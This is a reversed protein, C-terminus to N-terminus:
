TGPPTVAALIEARLEEAPPFASCDLERIGEAFEDLGAAGARQYGVLRVGLQLKDCLRVFRAERTEAARYELWHEHVGRGLSTLLGEAVADEMERKAGGPLARSAARPLDGTRAEPADHVLAMALVRGLDLGPQVRPALALALHATGLVHGAISEPEPVGRVIWGTRPLRDLPLLELLPELLGPRHM